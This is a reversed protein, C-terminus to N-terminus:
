SPTAWSGCPAPSRFWPTTPAWPPSSTTRRPSSSAPRRPSRRPACPGSSRTPTSAPASPPGASPSSVSFVQGLTIPTADQLHTRGVMVVDAYAKAKADLTDRLQQVRPYMAALENVVAIHMATPFTDNSSQGRNVHDNPHVPTKSGREGGALEIARNSIVENSNMNSQTGSGTQFVVLPFEADLDGAIVEDGAKAILEAIDAPLEGLEANALAASKKLIGLAKIMPRGWVFTERGIDFNHLSRETQAGWYRNADVEITGMSDSETRTTVAQNPTKADTTM